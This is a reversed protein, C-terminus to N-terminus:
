LATEETLRDKLVGVVKCQLQLQLESQIQILRRSAAQMMQNIASMQRMCALHGDGENLCGKIPQTTILDM